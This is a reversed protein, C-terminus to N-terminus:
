YLSVARSISVNSSLAIQFTESCSSFSQLLGQSNEKCHTTINDQSGQIPSSHSLFIRVRWVLVGVPPTTSWGALESSGGYSVVITTSLSLLQKARTITGSQAKM